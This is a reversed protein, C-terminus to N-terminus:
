SHRRKLFLLIGAAVLGVPLLVVFVVAFAVTSAWSISIDSAALNKTPINLTVSSENMYSLVELVFDANGLSETKLYRDQYLGTCATLFVYQTKSEGESDTYSRESTAAVTFPGKADGEAQTLTGMDQFSKAYASSTSKLVENTICDNTHTMTIARCEPLVLYTSQESFYVNIMSLGFSPIINMPSDMQQRHEMVIQDEVTLGWEQLYADLNPLSEVEPDRFVMLNGGSSMYSDLLTIEEQSFDRKAGAIMLTQVNEPIDDVGLVVQSVDYNSADILDKLAEPPNESHGATLAVGITGQTIVKVIASTLKTEARLGTLSYQQSGDSGTYTRLEYLESWEMFQLNGGCTVLVGDQTLTLNRDKTYSEAFAPNLDLDVYDVHIYDSSAAYRNLVEKVNSDANAQSNCYTITVDQDLEGLIEKTTDTLQFVQGETLDLKWNFRSVAASIVSFVGIAVAVVLVVFTLRMARDRKQKKLVEEPIPRGNARRQHEM